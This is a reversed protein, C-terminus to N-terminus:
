ALGRMFPHGLFNVAARADYTGDRGSSALMTELSKLFSYFVTDRMDLGMAFNLVGDRDFAYLLRKLGEDPLVVVTEEPSIGMAASKLISNMVFGAQEEPLRFEEVEIYAPYPAPEIDPLHATSEVLGSMKAGEATGEYHLFIVTDVAESAKELLRSEFRSLRGPSLICLRRFRKLFAPNEQASSLFGAKIFITDTLGDKELVDRYLSAIEELILVDREYDTYLANMRLDDFGVGEAFVEDYFRLLRRGVSAFRIFDECYRAHEQGFLETLKGTDLARVAKQLYPLRLEDPVIGYGGSDLCRLVFDKMEFCYPLVAPGPTGKDMLQVLRRVARSTPMVVASEHLSSRGDLLYRQIREIPDEKLPVPEIEIM